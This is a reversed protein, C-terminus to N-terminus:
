IVFGKAVWSTTELTCSTRSCVQIEAQSQAIDALGAGTVLTEGDASSLVINIPDSTDYKEQLAAFEEGEVSGETMFASVDANFEIWFFSLLSAITILGTLALVQRSHSVIFSAIRTM